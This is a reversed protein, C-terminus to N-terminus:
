AMWLGGKSQPAPSVACLVHQQLQAKERWGKDCQLKMKRCSNFYKTGNKKEVDQGFHFM